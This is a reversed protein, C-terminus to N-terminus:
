KKCWHIDAQRIAERKNLQNWKKTSNFFPTKYFLYLRNDIVQYHKPNSKYRKGNVSIGYACFGDYKPLYREPDLGFINARELNTFRYVSQGYVVQFTKRGKIPNGEFYSLLDYGKLAVPYKNIRNQAISNDFRVTILSLFIMVKFGNLKM